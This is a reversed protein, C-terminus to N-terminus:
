VFAFVGRTKVEYPAMLEVILDHDSKTRGKECDCLCICKAFCRWRLNTIHFNLYELRDEPSLKAISRDLKKVKKQTSFELLFENHLKCRLDYPEGNEPLAEGFVETIRGLNVTVAMKEGALSTEVGRLFGCVLESAIWPPLRRGHRTMLVEDVRILYYGAPDHYPWVDFRVITGVPNPAAAPISVLRPERGTGVISWQHQMPRLDSVRSDLIFENMKRDEEDQPNM